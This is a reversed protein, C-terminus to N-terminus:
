APIHHKAKEYVPLPHQPHPRLVSPQVSKVRLRSSKLNVTVIRFVRM